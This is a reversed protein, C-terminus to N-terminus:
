RVIWAIAASVAAPIVIMLVALVGVARDRWAELSGIRGNQRGLLECLETVSSGLENVRAATLLLLERDTKASLELDAPRAPAM